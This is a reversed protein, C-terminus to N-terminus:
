LVQDGFLPRLKGSCLAVLDLGEGLIPHTLRGTSCTHVWSSQNYYPPYDIPFLFSVELSSEDNEAVGVLSQTLYFRGRRRASAFNALVTRLTAAEM